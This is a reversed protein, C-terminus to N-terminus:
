KGVKKWTQDWKNDIVLYNGDQSLYYNDSTERRDKDVYQITSSDFTYTGGNSAVIENTGNQWAEISYSGDERFILIEKYESSKREWSGVISNELSPLNKAEGSFSPNPSFLFSLLVVAVCVVAALAGGGVLM